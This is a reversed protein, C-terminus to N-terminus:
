HVLIRQIEFWFPRESADISGYTRSRLLIWFDCPGIHVRGYIRDFSYQVMPSGYSNVYPIAKGLNLLGAILELWGALFALLVAYAPGGESAYSFTMLSMVATPGVSSQKATGLIVYAFLGM